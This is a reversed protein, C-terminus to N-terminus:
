NLSKLYSVFDDKGKQSFFSQEALHIAEASNILVSESKETLLISKSRTDKGVIRKVFENKELIKLTKSVSMPSTLTFKVLDVQTVETQGMTLIALSILQFLETQTIGFVKIQQNVFKEWNNSKQWLLFGAYEKPDPINAAKKSIQSSM